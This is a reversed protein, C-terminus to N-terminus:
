IFIKPAEFYLALMTYIINKHRYINHRNETIHKKGALAAM